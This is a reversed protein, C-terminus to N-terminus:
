ECVTPIEKAQAIEAATVTIVSGDTLEVTASGDANFDIVISDVATSVHVSGDTFDYDNAYIIPKETSITRQKTCNGITWEYSGALSTTGTNRNKSYEMPLDESGVIISMAYNRDEFQGDFFEVSSYLDSYFRATAVGNVSEIELRMLWDVLSTFILTSDAAYVESIEQHYPIGDTGYVLFRYDPVDTDSAVEEAGAQATGDYTLTTIVSGLDVGSVSDGAPLSVTCDNAIIKGYSIDYSSAPSMYEFAYENSGYSLSQNGGDPCPVSFQQDIKELSQSIDDVPNGAKALNNALWSQDGNSQSPVPSDETDIVDAQGMISSFVAIEQAVDTSTKFETTSDDSGGNGGPDDSSDDSSSGGGGCGTLVASLMLLVLSM